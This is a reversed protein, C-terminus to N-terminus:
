GIVSPMGDLVQNTLRKRFGSLIQNLSILGTKKLFVASYEGAEKGDDRGIGIYSYGSLKEALYDVQQKLGEQIGLIDVDNKKIMEAVYSKRYLWANEGDDPNDYRINFTMVNLASSSQCFISVSLVFFSLLLILTKIKHM